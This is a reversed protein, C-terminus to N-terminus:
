FEEMEDLLAALKDLKQTGLPAALPALQAVFDALTPHQFMLQPTLQLGLELQLRSVVSVVLLSHGGLDFFHDELGVQDIDLVTQWIAAVQCQLESVPPVHRRTSSSMDPLPLAKRDLKGNPTLVFAELAVWQTPVMYDPLDERLQAKLAERWSTQQEASPMGDAAIVYAVLQAGGPLEQAVVAAERVQATARLRAEIEGLEIRYGRVKVQHDIRGIYEVVGENRYRALDGTRYLRAGAAGFPDPVFREATLSPRQLYGRALGEGGILLEGSIGNPVGNLNGDLIYLATNAIPTGLWPRPATDTLRQSASWITTETPGYLNWVQQSHSLMRLALADSLAEGGCLLTRDALAPARPHDLLMRWTSPTAQLATIAHREVLDLIASPDLTTHKDALVVEAGVLLPLYLELAFIDFCFTTLSLFRDEAGLGPTRAMSLVFNGLAGHSVMVGKPKGTSGSTYIVYALSDADLAPQPDPLSDLTESAAHDDVLLTRVASGLALQPALHAQTILCALGSDEIMHQLRQTPYSPDLPVYAGGAKLVALLSVIMDLGREVAIGVLVDPGVGQEILRYALRNAQQNLQAHSLRAGAFM